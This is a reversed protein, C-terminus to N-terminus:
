SARKSAILTHHLLFSSAYAYIFVHMFDYILRKKKYKM